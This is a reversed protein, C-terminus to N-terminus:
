LIFHSIDLDSMTANFPLYPFAPSLGLTLCYVLSDGEWM